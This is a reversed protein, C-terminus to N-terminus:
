TGCDYPADSQDDLQAVQNASACDATRTPAKAAANAPANLKTLEGMQRSLEHTVRTVEAVAASTERNGREIAEAAQTASQQAARAGDLVAQARSVQNVNFGTLIVAVAIVVIAVASSRDLGRFRTGCSGCVSARVDVKQLCHKCRQFSAIVGARSEGAGVYTCRVVYVCTPRREYAFTLM